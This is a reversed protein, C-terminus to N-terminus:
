GNGQYRKRRAAHVDEITPLNGRKTENQKWWEVMDDMRKFADIVHTDQDFYGGTAPYQRYKRYNFYTDIIIETDLPWGPDEVWLDLSNPMPLKGSEYLAIDRAFNSLRKQDERRRRM